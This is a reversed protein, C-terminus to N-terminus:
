FVIVVFSSVQLGNERVLRRNCDEIKECMDILKIGPKVFSQTYVRVQRHVEAAHRVKDYFDVKMLRENARHM